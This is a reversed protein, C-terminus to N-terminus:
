KEYNDRNATNYNLLNASFKNNILIHGNIRHILKKTAFVSGNNYKRNIDTPLHNESM